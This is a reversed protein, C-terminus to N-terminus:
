QTLYEELSKRGGTSLYSYYALVISADKANVSGDGNVDAALKQSETLKPTNGTSYAAYAKLIETADKSNVSKDRNVDGLDYDAPKIPVDTTVPTTSTTVATTETSTATTTVTSSTTPTPKENVYVKIQTNTSVYDNIRVNYTGYQITIDREGALNSNFGWYS